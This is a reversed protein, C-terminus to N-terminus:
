LCAAPSANSASLEASVGAIDSPNGVQTMNQTEMATVPDAGDKVFLNRPDTAGGTPLEGLSSDVGATDASSLAEDFATAFDANTNSDGTSSTTTKRAGSVAAELLGSLLSM